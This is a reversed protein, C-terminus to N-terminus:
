TWLHIEFTTTLYKMALRLKFLKKSIIVINVPPIRPVLVPWFGMTACYNSSFYMRLYYKDYNNLSKLRIIVRCILNWNIVINQVKLVLFHGKARLKHGTIVRLYFGNLALASRSRCSLDRDPTADPSSSFTCLELFALQGWLCFPIIVNGLELLKYYWPLRFLMQIESDM